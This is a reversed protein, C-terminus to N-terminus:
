CPKLCGYTAGDRRANMEKAAAQCESNTAYSAVQWSDMGKYAWLQHDCAAEASSLALAAAFAAACAYKTKTM